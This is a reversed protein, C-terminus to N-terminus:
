RRIIKRMTSLSGSAGPSTTLCKPTDLTYFPPTRQVICMGDNRLEREARGMSFKNEYVTFPIRDSSEGILAEAVRAAANM